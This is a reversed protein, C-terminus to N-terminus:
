NAFPGRAQPAPAVSGVKVMLVLRRAQGHRVDDVFILM